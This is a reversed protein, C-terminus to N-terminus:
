KYLRTADANGHNSLIEIKYVEYPEEAKVNLIGSQTKSHLNVNMRMEGLKVLSEPMKMKLGQPPNLDSLNLVIVGM